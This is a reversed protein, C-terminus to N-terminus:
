KFSIKSLMLNGFDNKKGFSCIEGYLFTGVGDCMFDHELISKLGACGFIISNEGASQYFEEVIGQVRKPTVYRLLMKEELDRGSKIKGNELRLHANIHEMTSLTIHEFDNEAFGHQEKKYKLYYQADMGNIRLITRADKLELQCEEIIHEHINKTEIHVDTREDNIFFIGAQGNGAVLGNGAKGFNRAAGGGVLPCNLIKTLERIFINEKGPEDILVIAARVGEDVKKAFELCECYSGWFIDGNINKKLLCLVESSTSEGPYGATRCGFIESDTCKETTYFGIKM